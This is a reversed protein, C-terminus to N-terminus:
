TLLDEITELDKDCAVGVMEDEDAGVATFGDNGAESECSPNAAVCACGTDEVAFLDTNTAVAPGALALTATM